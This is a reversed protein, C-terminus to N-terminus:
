FNIKLNDLVVSLSGLLVALPIMELACFYLINQLYYRNQKFFITYSKYFTLFKVLFLVFGCYIIANQTTFPFYTLLLVLPFLLIAEISTILLLSTLFQKNEKGSFFVTNIITYLIIKLLFYIAIIAGIIGILAYESSLNFTDAINYTIYFYSLLSTLLVVLFVFLLQFRFESGTESMTHEGTPPFFLYRLHRTFFGSSKSFAFTTLIFCFILLGTLINDNRVTYPIPDGAIGYRGGALEPHYLSNNSFFTERYYLPLNVEKPDQPIDHGPLHLTDPQSSYRIERPKFWAQIASDQQAPTADKPLLRLVQYPTQPRTPKNVITDNTILSPIATSISDQESM